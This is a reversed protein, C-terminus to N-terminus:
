PAPNTRLAPRYNRWETAREYQHAARLLTAEDFPRAVLQLALPMGDHGFGCCVSIAPSGSLNFPVGYSPHEFSSWKLVSDFTPAEGPQIASILIDVDSMAQELECVLERRRRQAQIYDAASIFAGMSIRDRFSEGLRCEKDGTRLRSRHIAYGEALLILFGTAGWEALASLSVTRVEAGLDRFVALAAEIASRCSATAVVDKEFFHRIVGIKLGKISTNLTGSYSVGPRRVSGPDRSDFGALAELLISCDEATWALVGVHDLSFALPLCGYRSVLGFTPKLGAVGCLAAPSRVSGSTDSGVSALVMGAAVGAAAGSSSGGTFRDVRWPNRAPPWPLDFSPGGFAFEHTAMKGMMVSGAAALREVAAADEAPVNNILDYSHATTPIGKTNFVDKFGVPIGHLPSRQGQRMIEDEAARASEMAAEATTRIFAHIQNDAQEIRALCMRTLEVPSLQKSGILRSAEAITLFWNNKQM